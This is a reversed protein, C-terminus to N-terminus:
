LHDIEAENALVEVDELKSGSVNLVGENGDQVRVLEAFALAVTSRGAAELVDLLVEGLEFYVENLALLVYQHWLDLQLVLLFQSDLVFLALLLTACQGGFVKLLPDLIRLEDLLQLLSDSTPDSVDSADRLEVM